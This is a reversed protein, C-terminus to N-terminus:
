DSGTEKFNAYLGYANRKEGLTRKQGTVRKTILSGRGVDM